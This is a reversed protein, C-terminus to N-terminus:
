VRTRGRYASKRRQIRLQRIKTKWLPTSIPVNFGHPSKTLYLGLAWAATHYSGYLQGLVCDRDSAMKLKRLDIRFPWSQYQHTDLMRVAELILQIQSKKKKM